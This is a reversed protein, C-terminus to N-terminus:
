LLPICNFGVLVLINGIDALWIYPNSELENILENM